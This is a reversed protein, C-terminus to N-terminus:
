QFPSPFICTTRNGSFIWVSSNLFQSLDKLFDRRRSTTSLFSRRAAFSVLSAFARDVGRVALFELFADIREIGVAPKIFL